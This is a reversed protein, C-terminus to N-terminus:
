IKDSDLLKLAGLLGPAPHMVVYIPISALRERYPPHNEFCERFTSTQLFPLLSQILGGAIYVGGRANFTLALDGAIRGMLRFFFELTNLASEERDKAAAIIQSSNLEHGSAAHHLRTLGPSSLIDDVVLLDRQLSLKSFIQAENLASSGLVMHGAESSVVYFDRESRVLAASGFGTGPGCVLLNGNAKGKASGIRTLDKPKLFPLAHAVAAFDNVVILQRLKLRRQLQKRSFSWARNTLSILDGDIPGAVGLIATSPRKKDLAALERELLAPLDPIDDNLLTKIKGLSGGRRGFALRTKTGGIDAVLIPSRSRLDHRKLSSNSAPSGM